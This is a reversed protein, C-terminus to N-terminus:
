KKAETETATVSADKSALLADIERRHLDRFISYSWYLLNDWRPLRSDANKWWSFAAVGAMAAPVLTKLDTRRGTLEEVAANLEHAAEIAILAPRAPDRREERPLDLDAAQAIHAVIVDPEILGPEYRVLLSGTRAGHEVAIIGTVADLRERIKDVLSPDREFARARVRLRGPHHHVLQLAERQPVAGAEEM